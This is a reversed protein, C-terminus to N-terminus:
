TLIGCPKGDVVVVAASGRLELMKKTTTLVSDRSSVTVVSSLVMKQILKPTYSGVGYVFYFM